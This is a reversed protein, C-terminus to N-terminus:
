AVLVDGGRMMVLLLDVWACVFASRRRRHCAPPVSPRISVCKKDNLYKKDGKVEPPGNAADCFHVDDGALHEMLAVGFARAVSDGLVVIWKIQSDRLFKCHAGYVAVPLAAWPGTRTSPERFLKPLPTGAEAPWPAAPPYTYARAPKAPM